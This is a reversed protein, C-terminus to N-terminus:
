SVVLLPPNLFFLPVGVSPCPLLRVRCFGLHAGPSVFPQGARM